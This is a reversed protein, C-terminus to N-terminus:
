PAIPIPRGQKVREYVKMYERASDPWSYDQAMGNRM